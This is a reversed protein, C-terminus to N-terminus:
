DYLSDFILGQTKNKISGTPAPIREIIAEVLEKIGTGNKASTLIIEDESFGFTDVLEKTVKKADFEYM